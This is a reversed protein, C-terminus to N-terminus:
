NLLVGKDRVEVSTINRVLEYDSGKSHLTVLLLITSHIFVNEKLAQFITSKIQELRQIM